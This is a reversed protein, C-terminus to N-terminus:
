HLSLSFNVFILSSLSRHGIGDFFFLGEVLNVLELVVSDITAVDVLEFSSTNARCESTQHHLNSEIKRVKEPSLLLHEVDSTDCFGLSFLDEFSGRLDLLLSESSSHLNELPPLVDLLNGSARPLKVLEQLSANLRLGDGLGKSFESSALSLKAM